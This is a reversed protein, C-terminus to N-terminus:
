AQRFMEQFDASTITGLIPPLSQETPTRKLATFFAAMDDTIEYETPVKGGKLVTTALPNFGM